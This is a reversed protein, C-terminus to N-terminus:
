KKQVLIVEIVYEIGVIEYKIEREGKDREGARKRERAPVEPPTYRGATRGGRIAARARVAVTAHRM